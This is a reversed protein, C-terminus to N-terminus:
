CHYVFYRTSIEVCMVCVLKHCIGNDALRAAFSAVNNQTICHGDRIWIVDAQQKLLTEEEKSGSSVFFPKLKSTLSTIETSIAAIQIKSAAEQEQDQAVSQELAAIKAEKAALSKEASLKLRKEKKKLEKFLKSTGDQSAFRELAVLAFDCAVFTKDTSKVLQKDWVGSDIESTMCAWFEDKANWKSQTYFPQIYKLIEYRRKLAVCLSCIEEILYHTNAFVFCSIIM